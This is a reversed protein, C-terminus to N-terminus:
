LMVPIMHVFFNLLKLLNRGNRTLTLPLQDDLFSKHNAVIMKMIALCVDVAAYNGYMPIDATHSLIMDHLMLM